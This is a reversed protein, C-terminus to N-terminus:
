RYAPISQPAPTPNALRKMVAPDPNSVFIRRYPAWPALDIIATPARGYIAVFDTGGSYVMRGLVIVFPIGTGVRIGRLEAYPRDTTTTGTVQSLPVRVGSSFAGLKELLSLEVVLEEGVVNLKAM